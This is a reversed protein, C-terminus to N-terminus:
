PLWLDLEARKAVWDLRPTGQHARVALVQSGQHQGTGTPALSLELLAIETRVTVGEVTESKYPVFGISVDTLEGDNVMELIDDGLETRAVRARFGLGERTSTFRVSGVPEDFLPTNGPSGPSWPHFVGLPLPIGAREKITKDVSRPSFSEPYYSQGGDDTVKSSRNWYLAMGILTRGDATVDGPTARILTSKM